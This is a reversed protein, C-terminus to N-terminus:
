FGTNEWACVALFASFSAAVSVFPSAIVFLVASGRRSTTKEHSSDHHQQIRSSAVMYILCAVSSLVADWSISSQCLNSWGAALLDSAFAFPYLVPTEPSASNGTTSAGGALSHHFLIGPPLLVYQAVNHFHQLAAAGSFAAYLLSLKANGARQDDDFRAILSAASDGRVPTADRHPACFTPARGRVIVPRPPMRNGLAPVMLVFHLLALATVYVKPSHHVSYPLLMAALIALIGPLALWTLNVAPVFSAKPSASVASGNKKIVGASEEVQQHAEEQQRRQLCYVVAFAIPFSASIAGLFGLLLHCLQHYRSLGARAGAVHLWTCTPVVFFLLSSSFIWGGSTDTVRRYAEIFTEGGPSAQWAPTDCDFLSLRSGDCGFQKLYEGFFGFILSWTIAFAAGCYALSGMLLGPAEKLHISSAQCVGFAAWGLTTFYLSPLFTSLNM